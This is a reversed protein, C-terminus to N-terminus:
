ASPPQDLTKCVSKAYTTILRDWWNEDQLLERQLTGVDAGSRRADLIELHAMAIECASDRLGEAATAVEDPGEVIVMSLTRIVAGVQDSLADVCRSTEEICHPEAQCGQERVHEVATFLRRLHRATGTRALPCARRGVTGSDPKTWGERDGSLRGDNACSRGRCRSSGGM